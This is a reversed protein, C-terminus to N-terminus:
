IPETLEVTVVYKLHKFKISLRLRINDHLNLELENRDM